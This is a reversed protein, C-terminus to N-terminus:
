ALNGNKDIEDYKIYTGNEIKEELSTFFDPTVAM